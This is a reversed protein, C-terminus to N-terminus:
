ALRLTPWGAPWKWGSGALAPSWRRGACARSRMCVGLRAAGSRAWCQDFGPWEIETVGPSQGPQDPPRPGAERIATLLTIPITVAIDAPSGAGRTGTVVTASTIARMSAVPAASGAASPRAHKLRIYRSAVLCILPGRSPKKASGANM